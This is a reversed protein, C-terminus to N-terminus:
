KKFSVHRRYSGPTLPTDKVQESAVQIPNIELPPHNENIQIFQNIKDYEDQLGGVADRMIQVASILKKLEDLGDVQLEELKTVISSYYKLTLESETKYTPVLEKNYKVNLNEIDQSLKLKDAMMKSYDARIQPVENLLREYEMKAKTISVDEIKVEKKHELNEKAAKHERLEEVVRSLNANEDRLNQLKIYPDEAM